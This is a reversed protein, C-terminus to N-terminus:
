PEASSKAIDFKSLRERALYDITTTQKQWPIRRVVNDLLQGLPDRRWTSGSGGHWSVAHM